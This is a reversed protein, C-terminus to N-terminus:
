VSDNSRIADATVLLWRACRQEITHVSNCAVSQSVVDWAYQSYRRLRRQLEPLADIKAVFDDTSIAVFTGAIQCIGRYRATRAHNLLPLGTCAEKGMTLAEIMPGGKLAVLMSFMGTMPFYVTDMVEGHDFIQHRASFDVKTAHEMLRMLESRPLQDLISNGSIDPAPSGTGSHAAPPSSSTSRQELQDPSPSNM